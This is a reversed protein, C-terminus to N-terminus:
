GDGNEEGAGLTPLGCEKWRKRFTKADIGAEVAARTVNHRYRRLLHSLYVRDFAREYPQAAERYPLNLWNPPLSRSLEDLLEQGVTQESTTAEAAEPPPVEAGAELFAGMRELPLHHPLIVEGECEVVAGKVINQLERVNGPFRYSRLISLTERAWRLRRGTDYAELFHKLLLDVDARRERLSPIHIQM